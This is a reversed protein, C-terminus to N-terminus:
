LHTLKSYAQSFNMTIKRRTLAYKLTSYLFIGKFLRKRVIADIIYKIMGTSIVGSKIAPKPKISSTASRAHAKFDILDSM